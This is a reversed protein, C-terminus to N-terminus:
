IHILSLKWVTYAGHEKEHLLIEVYGKEVGDIDQMEAKRIM